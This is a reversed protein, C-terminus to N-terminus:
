PSIRPSSLSSSRGAIVSPHPASVSDVVAHRQEGRIEGTTPVINPRRRILTQAVGE